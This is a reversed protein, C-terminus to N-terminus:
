RELNDALSLSLDDASPMSPFPNHHLLDNIKIYKEIISINIILGVMTNLRLGTMCTRSDAQSRPHSLGTVLKDCGLRLSSRAQRVPDRM